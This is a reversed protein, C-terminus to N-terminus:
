DMPDPKPICCYSKSPHESMVALIQTILEAEEATFVTFMPEGILQLGNADSHGISSVISATWRLRSEGPRLSPTPKGLPWWDWHERTYKELFIKYSNMFSTDSDTSLRIDSKPTRAFIQQLKYPLKSLMQQLDLSTEPVPSQNASM